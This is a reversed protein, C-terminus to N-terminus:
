KLKKKLQNVRLLRDSWILISLFDFRRTFATLYNNWDVEPSFGLDFNNNMPCSGGPLDKANILKLTSVFTYQM